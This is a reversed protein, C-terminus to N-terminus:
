QEVHGRIWAGLCFWHGLGLGIAQGEGTLWVRHGGIQLPTAPASRRSIPLYVPGWSPISNSGTTALLVFPGVQLPRVAVVALLLLLVLPPALLLWLGRSGRKRCEPAEEANIIPM